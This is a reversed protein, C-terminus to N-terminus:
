LPQETLNSLDCIQNVGIYDQYDAVQYRKNNFDEYKIIIFHGREDYGRTLIQFCETQPPTPESDDSSCGIFLCIALLLLLKKM